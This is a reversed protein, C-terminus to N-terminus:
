YILVNSYFLKYFFYVIRQVSPCHDLKEGNEIQREHLIFSALPVFVLFRLHELGAGLWPPFGHVGDAWGPVTIVESESLTVMSVSVTSHEQGIPLNVCIISIFHPRLPIDFLQFIDFIILWYGLNIVPLGWLTFPNVWLGRLAPPHHPLLNPDKWRTLNGRKPIKSMKPIKSTKYKSM